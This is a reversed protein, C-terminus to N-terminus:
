TEAVAANVLAVELLCMPLRRMAKMRVAFRLAPNEIDDYMGFGWKSFEAGDTVFQCEV